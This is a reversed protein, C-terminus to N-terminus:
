RAHHLIKLNEDLTNMKIESQTIANSRNTVSNDRRETQWIHDTNEDCKCLSGLAPTFIEFDVGSEENKQLEIEGEIKALRQFSWRRSIKTKSNLGTWSCLERRTEAEFKQKNSDSREIISVIIAAEVSEGQRNRSTQTNSGVIRRKTVKREAIIVTDTSRAIKRTM